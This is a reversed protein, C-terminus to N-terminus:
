EGLSLGGLGHLGGGFHDVRGRIGASCEGGSGGTTMKRCFVLSRLDESDSRGASTYMKNSPEPEISHSWAEHLYEISFQSRSFCAAIAITWDIAFFRVFRVTPIACNLAALSQYPWTSPAVSCAGTVDFRAWTTLLMLACCSRYPPM